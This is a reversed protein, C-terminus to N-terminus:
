RESDGSDERESGRPPLDQQEEDSDMGRNSIGGGSSSSNREGQNGGEGPSFQQGSQSSQYRGPTKQDREGEAKDRDPHQSQHGPNDQVQTDRAQNKKEDM